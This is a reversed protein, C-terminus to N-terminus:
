FGGVNLYLCANICLLAVKLQHPANDRTWLSMRNLSSKEVSKHKLNFYMSAAHEPHIGPPHFHCVSLALSFLIHLQM